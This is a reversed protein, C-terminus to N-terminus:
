HDNLDVLHSEGNVDEVCEKLIKRGKFFNMSYEYQLFLRHKISYWAAVKLVADGNSM